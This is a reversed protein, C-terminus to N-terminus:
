KGGEEKKNRKMLYIGGLSVAVVLLLAVIWWNEVLFFEKQPEKNDSKELNATAEVKEATPQVTYVVKPLPTATVAPTPTLTNIIILGTAQVVPYTVQQQPAGAIVTLAAEVGQSPIAVGERTSLLVDTIKLPSEGQAVGSFNVVLIIGEGSKAESPNYQTMVFRITGATNDATNFLLLGPDLFDGLSSQIGPTLPDSDEVQVLAPDFQLTFDLAYLDKVNRVSVPVQISEGPSVQFSELVGVLALEGQASVGFPVSLALILTLMVFLNKLTIPHKM